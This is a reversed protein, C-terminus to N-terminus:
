SSEDSAADPLTCTVLTGPPERRIAFSAGIMAARHQMIKLGMGRHEPLSPPLGSGDDQITMRIGEPVASLRINVQKARGHRIANSLAEQAIRFLHIAAAPDDIPAPDPDDFRCDIRFRETTTKALERLAATLGEADLEVPALGRALDRALTIGEEVLAVIHNADAFEPLSQAALKDSLVQGAVATGTLHQCLSDHL